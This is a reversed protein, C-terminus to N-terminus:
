PKDSTTNFSALNEISENMPEQTASITLEAESSINNQYIETIKHLISETAKEFDEVQLSPLTKQIYKNWQENLWEELFQVQRALAKKDQTSSFQKQNDSQNLLQKALILSSNLREMEEVLRRHEHIRKWIPEIWQKMEYEKQQILFIDLNTSQYMWSELADLQKLIDMREVQSCFRHLEHDDRTLQERYRLIQAELENLLDARQRVITDMQERAYLNSKSESIDKSTYASTLWHETCNILEITIPKRQVPSWTPTSNTENLHSENQMIIMQASPFTIWGDNTISVSLEVFSSNNTSGEIGSFHFTANGLWHNTDLPENEILQVMTANRFAYFHVDFDHTPFLVIQKVRPVAEGVQFLLTDISVNSNPDVSLMRVDFTQWEIIAVAKSRINPSLLASYFTTGYVAGEDANISKNLEGFLSKLTNQLLPIRSTGGFPVVGHLDNITINALELSHKSLQVLSDASDQLLSELEHRYITVQIDMSNILNELGVRAEQNVSLVEKVRKAEQLLRIRCKVCQFVTEIEEMKLQGKTAAKELIWHALQLDFHKGGLAKNWSHSKVEITYGVNAGNFKGSESKLSFISATASEVGMDVFLILQPQSSPSWSLAYKLANATNTHILGSLTIGAMECAAYMNLREEFSFWVPVTIAVIPKTLSSVSQNAIKVAQRLVLAFIETGDRFGLEKIVADHKQNRVPSSQFSNFFLRAFYRQLFSRPYFVTQNPFRLSSALALDGFVISGDSAFSLVSPTKRKSQENTAIQIGVGPRVVGVKLYDAGIDIGVFSSNVLTYM